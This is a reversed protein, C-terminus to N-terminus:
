TVKLPKCGATGPQSRVSVLVERGIEGEMSVCVRVEREGGDEAVSFKTNVFAITVNDNDDITVITQKTDVSIRAVGEPARLKVEFHEAAELINDDFINIRHCQTQQTETSIPFTFFSPFSSSFDSDAMAVYILNM